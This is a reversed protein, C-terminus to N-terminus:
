KEGVARCLAVLAAAANKPGTMGFRQLASAVVALDADTALEFALKRARKALGEELDIPDADPVPEVGSGTLAVIDEIEDLSFGSAEYLSPDVEPIGEFLESLKAYDWEGSIKNLALNLLKTKTDDFGAVFVVPVKQKAIKAEDMGSEALIRRMATVRQHGGILLGDEKRAIVPQVFGFERLSAMLKRMESDPMERPNYEAGSLKGIPFMEHKHETSIM